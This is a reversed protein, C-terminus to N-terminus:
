LEALDGLWAKLRPAAFDLFARSKLPLPSPAAYILSVPAPAPEFGRLITTLRGAKIAAAVQYSLVRTVGMAAIAADIAAEATNITLRSCVPFGTITKGTQFPWADSAYLGEFTICAHSRLDGPTQPTGKKAFYAPAGCVVRRIAGIRKATVSSDPLEGVRIALDVHEELLNVVRDALVLRVNIDPYAKLFEMTVPLVLLRGMVIPAAITLDGKPTSYEGSAAREAERIEDLIRKCAVVYARGAETLELRRSTRTVLRASLHAELDSVKRSVTALPVGLKRSAASLSGTEVATLLTAMSELRDM